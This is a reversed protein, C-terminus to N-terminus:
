NIVIEVRPNDKDVYFEDTFGTIFRQSDNKLIGSMVLGDNVFKKAFAINDLDKRQDKSYWKYQIKVPYNKIPEPHQSKVEKVIRLTEEQKITNGSWRNGNLAKIYTNLDTLEGKITINM